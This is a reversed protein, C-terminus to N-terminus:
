KNIVIAEGSIQWWGHIPNESNRDKGSLVLLTNLAGLNWNVYTYVNYHITDNTSKKTNKVIIVGNYCYGIKNNTGKERIDGNGTYGLDSCSINYDATKLVADLKAITDGSGRAFFNSIDVIQNQEVFDIVKNKIRFSKAYKFSVATFAVYLVIFVLMLRTMFVGGFADRM